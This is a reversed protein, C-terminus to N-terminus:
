AVRRAPRLRPRAKTPKTKRGGPKSTGAMRRHKRSPPPAPSRRVMRRPPASTADAPVEAPAEVEYGFAGAAVRAIERSVISKTTVEFFGRSVLEGAVEGSSTKLLAALKSILITSGISIRRAEAKETPSVTAARTAPESSSVITSVAEFAESDGADELEPAVELEDDDDDDDLDLDSADPRSSAANTESPFSAAPPSPATRREEAEDRVSALGSDPGVGRRRIVVTPRIHDLVISGHSADFDANSHDDMTDDCLDRRACSQASGSARATHAISAGGHGRRFM